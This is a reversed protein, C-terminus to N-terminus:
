EVHEWFDRLGDANLPGFIGLWAEDDKLEGDLAAPEAQILVEWMSLGGQIDSSRLHFFPSRGWVMTANDDLLDPYSALGPNRPTVKRIARIRDSCGVSLALCTLLLVAGTRRLLNNQAM